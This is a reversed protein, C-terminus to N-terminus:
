LCALQIISIRNLSNALLAVSHGSRWQSTKSICACHYKRSAFNSPLPLMKDQDNTQFYAYVTINSSVVKYM